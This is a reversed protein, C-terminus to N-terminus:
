QKMYKFSLVEQTNTNMLKIFYLGAPMDPLTAGGNTVAIVGNAQGAAGSVTLNWGDTTLGSIHITNSTNPNPYIRVTGNTSGTAQFQAMVSNFYSIEGDNDTEMLRYYNKGAVPANDDFSYHMESTTNGQSAVTGLNAWEVGDTSHQITYNNVNMEEATTWNVAVKNGDAAATFDSLHIPLPSSSRTSNTMTLTQYSIGNAQIILKMDTANLSNPTATAYDNVPRWQNGTTTITGSSNAGTLPLAVYNTGNVSGINVRFDWMNSPINSGTFVVTYDVKFDYNYGCGCSNIVPVVVTPTITVTVTYGVTSTVTLTGTTYSAFAKNSLGAVLLSLIFATQTFLHKM